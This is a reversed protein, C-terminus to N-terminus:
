RGPEGRAAGPRQQLVPGRQDHRDPRGRRQRRQRLHGHDAHQRARWRSAPLRAPPRDPSRHPEPLRRVGGDDPCVAAARRGAAFGLRARGPRPALARRRGSRHGAGEAARVDERPLRGLRRRVVGKYRDAWEKPSRTRRTRPAPASTSSSRSTRTRGAQCGRHVRDGQRRPGRHPSLGRRADESARGPPQRLGPRPVVPEHRRRPIRLYREFGRGLPWRDYPGGRRDGPQEADSAVQRRMFTSYGQELLMESLMGNEFPIIGNYGPYGTAVRHHLGHWQLPPKARHPHVVPTPSCLATTHMNNYRLGNEALGDITAADRDPQRLLGAPRLGHRGPRHVLREARGREGAGAGAM